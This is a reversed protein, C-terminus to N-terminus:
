DSRLDNGREHVERARPERIRDIKKLRKLRRKVKKSAYNKKM